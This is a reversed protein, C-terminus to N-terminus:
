LPLESEDRGADTKSIRALEQEFRDEHGMLVECLNSLSFEGEDREV